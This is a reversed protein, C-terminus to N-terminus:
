ESSRTTFSLHQKGMIFCLNVRPINESEDVVIIDAYKGITISGFQKDIKMAKAPNITAYNVAKYLPFNHERYLKFISFLISPSYYDSCIINALDNQLLELASINNNHSGGLVINPAGVVVFMTNKVAEKAVSISLPFECINLGNLLMWKLQEPFEVDHYAIPIKNENASCILKNLLSNNLKDKKQCKEIIQNSKESSVKGYQQEIVKRFTDLDKYQGQGPTHDMFSLESIKGQQIRVLLGEYSHISNLEFRAHFNHHASYKHKNQFIYDCLRFNVDVNLTRYRDCITTEAISMSHYISTIGQCILQRDIENLAIASDFIIGKRPVLVKEIVDSHIDIIGPLVYKGSCDYFEAYKKGDVQDNPIIDSIRENNIVISYGYLVKTPTVINGNYLITM